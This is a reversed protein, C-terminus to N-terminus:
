ESNTFQFHGEDESYDDFVSKSIDIGYIKRDKTM